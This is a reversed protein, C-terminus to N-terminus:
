KLFERTKNESSHVWYHCKECLLVLNSLVARLEKNEFGVIHHIDFECKIRKKGQIKGCKQCTCKDRAYVTPAVKRWEISSYFAARDPTIGGKWNPTEVGRKGKLYHTGNKLYPVHGDTIRAARILDKTKQSHSRGKFPSVRGKIYKGTAVGRPRTQIGFDKMWNWVSKTDRGVIVAIQACDLNEVLYKRRLWKESVPKQLRQWEAKCKINCFHSVSENHSSM